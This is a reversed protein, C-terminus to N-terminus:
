LVYPFRCGGSIFRHFVVIRLTGIWILSVMEQLLFPNESAKEVSATNTAAYGMLACRFDTTLSRYRQDVLSMFTGVVEAKQGEVAKDMKERAKAEERARAAKQLRM